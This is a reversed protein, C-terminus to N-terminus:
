DLPKTQKHELAFLLAMQEELPKGTVIKTAELSDLDSLSDLGPFIKCFADYVLNTDITTKMRRFAEPTLNVISSFEFKRFGGPLYSAVLDVAERPNKELALRICENIEEKSSVQEDSGWMLWTDILYPAYDPFELYGPKIHWQHKIRSAIIRCIGKRDEFSFADLNVSENKNCIQKFCDFALTIPQADKAIRLALNAMSTGVKVNQILEFILDALPNDFVTSYEAFLFGYGTFAIALVYSAPESLTQIRRRIKPVVVRPNNSILFSPVLSRASSTQETVVSNLTNIFREVEKDSVDVKPISYSFFRDFYEQSCIRKEAAWNEATGSPQQKNEFLEEVQPFLAEILALASQRSDYHALKTEILDRVGSKIRKAFKEDHVRDRFIRGLFVEKYDRVLTYLEPYFIRLGEILILDVINVESKLIPLSFALANQYRSIVRPTTLSDLLGKIFTGEFRIREEESLRIDVAKTIQYVGDLALGCM